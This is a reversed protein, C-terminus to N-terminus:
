QLHEASQGDAYDIRVRAIVDPGFGPIHVVAPGEMTEDLRCAGDRDWMRLRVPFAEAPLDAFAAPLNM